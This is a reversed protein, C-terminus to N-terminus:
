YRFQVMNWIILQWLSYKSMVAKHFKISAPWPFPGHSGMPPTALRFASFIPFIDYLVCNIKKFPCFLIGTGYCNGINRNFIIFDRFLKLFQKHFRLILPPYWSPEHQKKELLLNLKPGRYTM